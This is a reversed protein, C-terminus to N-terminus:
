RIRPSKEAADDNDDCADLFRFHDDLTTLTNACIVGSGAAAPVGVGPAVSDGVRYLKKIGKVAPGPFMKPAPIVAGYTGRYRRLWIEHSAPSALLVETQAEM